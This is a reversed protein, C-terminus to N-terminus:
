TKPFFLHGLIIGTAGKMHPVNYYTQLSLPTCALRFRPHGYIGQSM